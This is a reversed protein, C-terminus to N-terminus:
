FQSIVNPTATDFGCIDLMGEDNPNAISFNTPTMACVILKANPNIAKRYKELAQFPHIGGAWTENDTYIIFKDVKLKKELADLMPKACDTGGMPLGSVKRMVAAFDDRPSINIDTMNCDHWSGRKGSTFGKLECFKETRVTVMAMVASAERCSINNFGGANYGGMSGSIDLGIYYNEGSPTVNDFSAYFADQMADRIVTIPSWSLNGRFGSGSSYTKIAVLMSM